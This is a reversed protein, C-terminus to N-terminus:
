GNNDVKVSIFAFVLLISWLGAATGTLVFGLISIVAVAIVISMNVLAMATYANM